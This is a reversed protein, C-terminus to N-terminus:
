SMFICSTWFFRGAARMQEAAFPPKEAFHKVQHAGTSLAEGQDIHGFGTALEAPRIGFTLTVIQGAVATQHATEM